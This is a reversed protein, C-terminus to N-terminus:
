TATKARPKLRGALTEQLRGPCRCRASQPSLHAVIGAVLYTSGLQDNLKDFDRETEHDASIEHPPAQFHQLSQRRMLEADGTRREHGRARIRLARHHCPALGGAGVPGPRAPDRVPRYIRRYAVM